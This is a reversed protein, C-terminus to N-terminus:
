IYDSDQGVRRPRHETRVMQRLIVLEVVPLASKACFFVELSAFVQM